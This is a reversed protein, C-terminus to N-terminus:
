NFPLYKIEYVRKNDIKTFWNIIDARNKWQQMKLNVCLKDNLNHVIVKSIRGVENKAPDIIRTSPNNELNEKHDELTIFCYSTGNKNMRNLTTSLNQYNFKTLTSQIKRQTALQYVNSTKDAPKLTKSSSKM